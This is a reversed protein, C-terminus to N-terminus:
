LQVEVTAQDRILGRRISFHIQWTGPMHLLMGRVRFRQGSLREVVPRVHMGHNHAAMGADVALEVSYDIAKLPEAVEVELDFYRNLPIDAPISRWNLQYYAQESLLPTNAGEAVRATQALPQPDPTRDRAAYQCAALLCCLSLLSILRFIKM